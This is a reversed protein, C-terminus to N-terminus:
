REPKVRLLQGGCVWNEAVKLVEKNGLQGTEMVTRMFDARPNEGAVCGRSWLATGMSLDATRVLVRPAWPWTHARGRRARFAKQSFCETPTHRLM